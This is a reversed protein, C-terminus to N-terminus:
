MGGDYGKARRAEWRRLPPGVPPRWKTWRKKAGRLGHAAVAEAWSACLMHHRYYLGRYDGHGAADRATGM